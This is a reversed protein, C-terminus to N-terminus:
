EDAFAETKWAGAWAGQAAHAKIYRFANGHHQRDRIVTRKSGKAWLLGSYGADRMAVAVCRKVKGVLLRQQGDPLKVLAYM